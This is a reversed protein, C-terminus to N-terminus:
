RIELISEFGGLITFGPPPNSTTRVSQEIFFPALESNIEDIQGGVVNVVSPLRPDNGVICTATTPNCSGGGSMLGNGAIRSKKTVSDVVATFRRVFDLDYRQACNLRIDKQLCEIGDPIVEQSAGAITNRSAISGQWYLQNALEQIAGGAGGYYLFQEPNVGSNSRSLLSGETYLVGVINTPTPSIYTNAGQGSEGKIVIMGFSSNTNDPNYVINDKIFLNV